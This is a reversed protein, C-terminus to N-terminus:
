LRGRRSYDEHGQPVEAYLQTGEPLHSYLFATTIDATKFDYGRKSAVSLAMRLTEQKLTPSAFYQSTKYKQRRGNFVLRSKYKGNRKRTLLVILRGIEANAPVDSRKVTEFVERDKMAKMETKVAELYKSGDPVMRLDEITSPINNRRKQQLKEKIKERQRSTRPKLKHTLDQSTSIFALITSSDEDYRRPAQIVRGSRTQYGDFMLYDDVATSAATLDGQFNTDQESANQGAAM